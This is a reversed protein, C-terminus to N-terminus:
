DIITGSGDVKDVTKERKGAELSKKKCRSCMCDGSFRDM